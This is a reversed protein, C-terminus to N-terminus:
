DQGKWIVDIQGDYSYYVVSAFDPLHGKPWMKHTFRAFSVPISGTLNNEALDLMQLHSFLTVEQPISGRFM